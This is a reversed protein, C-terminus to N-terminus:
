KLVVQEGYLDYKRLGVLLDKANDSAIDLKLERNLWTAAAAVPVNSYYNDRAFHVYKMLLFASFWDYFRKKFNRKTSTNNQMEQLKEAFNNQILFQAISAPLTELFPAIDQLEFLLNVKGFFTKLDQFSEPAYTDYDTKNELIEGVAKGTGFPVRHSIRPSPIVRTTKIETFSGLPIFKHLFYFDEGAKRRNMGGQQQYADSRVAMSSGITQYAHPFGAWKQANIYYRLHLEYLIISEYIDEEYLHGDIPHEFHIGCATTKRNSAFHNEIAQLYNKECRSDADLCVIIGRKNRLKEFRHVAEDMGIKRAFGVGAYKKNINDEYLIHYRIKTISQMKAWHIAQNYTQQNQAKVEDSDAESDNIVVIVEVDNKPADCKQLSMLTFLLDPEDYCPIVIITNLILSPKRHILPPYLVRHQLYSTM